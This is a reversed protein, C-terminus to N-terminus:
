GGVSWREAAQQPSVWGWISESRQESDLCVEREKDGWDLAEQLNRDMAEMQGELCRKM